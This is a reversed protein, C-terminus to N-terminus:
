FNYKKKPKLSKLDIYTRKMKPHCSRCHRLVDNVYRCIFDCYPCKMHPDKSCAENMHRELRRAFEFSRNCGVNPCQYKKKNTHCEFKLHNLLKNKSTLIM